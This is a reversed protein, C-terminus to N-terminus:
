WYRHGSLSQYNPQLRWETQLTELEIEHQRIKDIIEKADGGLVGELERGLRVLEQDFEDLTM